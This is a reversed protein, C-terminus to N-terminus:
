LRSHDERGVPTLRLRCFATLVPCGLSLSVLWRESVARLGLGLIRIGSTIPQAKKISPSSEVIIATAIGSMAL